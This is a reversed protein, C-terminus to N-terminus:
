PALRRFVTLINQNPSGADAHRVAIFLKLQRLVPLVDYVRGLWVMAEFWYLFHRTLFHYVQHSDDLFEGSRVQHYLWFRCAYALAPGIHKNIVDPDIDLRRTGPKKVACIDQRLNGAEMMLSFCTNAISAHVKPENIQFDHPEDPEVLFDRFSLHFPHITQDEENDDLGVHLVSHLRGLRARLQERSKLGHLKIVFDVPMPEASLVIPGVLSRFEEIISTAQKPTQDKILRRLVPLYTQALRDESSEALVAELQEDPGFFDDKAIFACVTTAFIFLPVSRRTLAEIADRGPWDSRSPSMGKRLQQFQGELFLAIDHHITDRTHDRLIVQRYQTHELGAFAKKVPADPRSTILSRIGFLECQALLEVVHKLDTERCEDLADVVIIFSSHSSQYNSKRLPAAILDEFQRQMSKDYGSLENNLFEAIHAKMGDIRQALQTAITTFFKTANARDIEDSKFFFSAGLKSDRQLDVAVTKAVTSKGEGAIGQLWFICEGTKDDAWRAIDALLEVRTGQLCASTTSFSDHQAGAVVPLKAFEIAMRTRFAETRLDELQDTIDTVIRKTESVLQATRKDLQRDCLRAATGVDELHERCNSPFKRLGDDSLLANCFRTAGNAGLLRLAEALFALVAAYVRVLSRRLEEAHPGAPQENYIELYVNATQHMSLAVLIGNMLADMQEKEAVFVQLLLCIGAWPLGAHVPDAGVAISGIDKFKGILGVVADAKDRLIVTKNGITLRWKREDCQKKKDVAANIANQVTNGIDLPDAQHQLLISRHEPELLELVDDLSIQKSTMTTTAPPEIPAAGVTPDVRSISGSTHEDTTTTVPPAPSPTRSRIHLRDFPKLLKGLGRRSVPNSM